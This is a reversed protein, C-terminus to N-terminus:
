LIKFKIFTLIIIFIISNNRVITRSDIVGLFMELANNSVYM